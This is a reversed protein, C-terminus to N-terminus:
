ALGGPQLPRAAAHQLGGPPQRRKRPEPDCGREADGAQLAERRREGPHDQGDLVYVRDAVQRREERESIDRHEPDQPHLQEGAPAITGAGGIAPDPVKGALLKGDEPRRPGQLDDKDQDIGEDALEEIRNEKHVRQARHRRLRVGDDIGRTEHDAQAHASKEETRAELDRVLAVVAEMGQADEQPAQDDPQGKPVHPARCTPPTRQRIDDGLPEPGRPDDDGQHQTAHHKDLAQDLLRQYVDQVRVGPALVHEGNGHSLEAIEEGDGDM